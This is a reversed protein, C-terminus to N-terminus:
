RTKLLERVGNTPMGWCRILPRLPMKLTTGAGLRMQLWSTSYRRLDNLIAVLPRVLLNHDIIKTLKVQDVQQQGSLSEVLRQAGLTATGSIMNSVSEVASTSYTIQVKLLPSSRPFRTQGLRHSQRRLWMDCTRIQLRTILSPHGRYCGPWDDLKEAAILRTV